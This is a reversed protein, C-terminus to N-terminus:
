RGGRALLYSCRFSGAEDSRILGIARYGDAFAAAFGERVALRWRNAAEPDSSRLANFAGPIELLALPAEPDIPRVAPPGDPHPATEVLFPLAAMPDNPPEPRPPPDARWVAILRDTPVGANLADTRPGYMDAVYESATAGLVDLNFRANSAQLPDFSWAVCSLGEAVAFDFQRQKLRRGLGRGQYEPVVGTLQSYLGLAGEIRGLFGFSLGVATGDDRFAGLVLGGHRDAGVMTAIPVVYGEDVLGWARRQADQCAFYDAPNRPRRITVADPDDAPM